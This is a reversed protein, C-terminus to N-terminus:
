RCLSLAKETVSGFFVRNKLWHMEGLRDTIKGSELAMPGPCFVDIDLLLALTSAAEGEPPQFTRILNIGYPHGPVSLLDQYMFHSSGLNGPPGPIGEFYEDFALGAIPVELRNIVRVGFRQIESPAALEAHIAWLRLAEASFRAWDQYPKLRSFSFGDRGFTALNLGDASEFRLGVWGRDQPTAPDAPTTATAHDPGISLQVPFSVSFGRLTKVKPYDPLAAKLKAMVDAEEWPAEARARFDIVAEVIPARTLHPFQEDLNITIFPTPSSEAM